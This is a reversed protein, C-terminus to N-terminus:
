PYNKALYHIQKNLDDLIRKGDKRSIRGDDMHKKVEDYKKRTEAIQLAASSKGSSIRKSSMYRRNIVGDLIFCAAAAVMTWFYIDSRAGVGAASWLGAYVGLFLLWGVRRLLGHDGAAEYIFYFFLFFPVIAAFIVALILYQNIISMLWSYDMFRLGILPLLVAILWRIKKQDDFLSIKGLVIHFIVMLVIFILTREFLLGDGWNRQGFAANLIPEFIDVVSDVVRDMVSRVSSFTYGQASVSAIFMVSLISFVIWFALSKKVAFVEKNKPHLFNGRIKKM